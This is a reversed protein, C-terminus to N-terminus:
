KAFNEKKSITYPLMYLTLLNANKLEYKQNRTENTKMKFRQLTHLSSRYIVTCIETYM